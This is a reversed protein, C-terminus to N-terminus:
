VMLERRTRWEILRFASAGVIANVMGRGLLVLVSVDRLPVEFVAAFRGLLWLDLLAALFLTVFQASFSSLLFRRGAYGVAYALLVRALGLLGLVPGGFALDQAWAAAAGVLMGGTEGQTLCVFVTIILFPDLLMAYGPLLLTLASQLLLAAVILTAARLVTM